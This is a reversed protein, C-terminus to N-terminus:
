YLCLEFLLFINRGLEKLYSWGISLRLLEVRYSSSETRLGLRYLRRLVRGAM